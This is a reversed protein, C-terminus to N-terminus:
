KENFLDAPDVNLARALRLAVNIGPYRKGSVLQSFYPASMRAAKAIDRRKRGDLFVAVELKTRKSM